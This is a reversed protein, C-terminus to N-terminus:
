MLTVRRVPGRAEGAHKGHRKQRMQKGRVYSLLAVAVSESVQVPTKATRLAPVAARWIDRAARPGRAEGAQKQHRNKVCRFGRQDVLPTPVLANQHV